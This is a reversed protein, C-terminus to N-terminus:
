VALFAIEVDSRVVPAVGVCEHACVCDRKANRGITIHLTRARALWRSLSLCAALYIAAPAVSARFLLESLFSLFLPLYVCRRASYFRLLSLSVPSLLCASPILFTSRSLSLSLPLSLPNYLTSCPSSPSFSLAILCDRLAHSPPPSPSLFLRVLSCTYFCIYVLRLRTHIQMRADLRSRPSPFLSPSISLATQM